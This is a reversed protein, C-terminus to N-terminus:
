REQIRAMAHRPQRGLSRQSVRGLVRGFRVVEELVAPDQRLDEIRIESIPAMAIKARRNSIIGLGQKLEPPLRATAQDLADVQRKSREPLVREVHRDGDVQRFLEAVVDILPQEDLVSAVLPNSQRVLGVHFVPINEQVPADLFLRREPVWTKLM